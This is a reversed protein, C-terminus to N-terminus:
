GINRGESSPNSNKPRARFRKGAFRPYPCVLWNDRIRASRQLASASVDESAYRGGIRIPATVLDYIAQVRLIIGGNAPLGSYRELIRLQDHVLVTCRGWTSSSCCNISTTVLIRSM